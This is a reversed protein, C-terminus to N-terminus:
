ASARAERKGEVSSLLKEWSAAFAALGDRQLRTGLETVDVGELRHLERVARADSDEKPLTGIAEGHDAFAQLTQEPLTCITDHTALADVYLTDPAAPDKTGLSAWLLRQPRAGAAALKRWRESALLAVHEQYIAKAVTIGLRNHLEPAVSDKVAADWRSVFVSAVSEVEPDLGAALRRELGRLYALAAALYHEPTFLLTVNVPVGRFIVEEVARVGEATGPIKMFLNHKGAQAHLRIAEAATQAADGAIRPSVELSVWGDDGGSADFAPRFLDAAESLDELALEFLLAEGSFGAEVLVRISADYDGGADIARELITPNSTLGTVSLREIYGALTGSRLLARTINDLWLRTM